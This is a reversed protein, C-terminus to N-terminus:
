GVGALRGALHPRERVASAGGTVRLVASGDPRGRPVAGAGRLAVAVAGLITYFHYAAVRFLGRRFCTVPAHPAPPSSASRIVPLV